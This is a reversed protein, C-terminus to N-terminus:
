DAHRGEADERHTGVGFVVVVIYVIPGFPFGLLILVAWAWKPMFPVPHTALHWLAAVAIVLFVGTIPLWSVLNM